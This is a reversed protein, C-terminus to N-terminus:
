KTAKGGTSTTGATHSTVGGAVVNEDTTNEEESTHDTHGPDTAHDGGGSPGAPGPGVPTTPLLEETPDELYNMPTLLKTGEFCDAFQMARIIEKPNLNKETEEVIRGNNPLIDGVFRHKKPVVKVKKLTTKDMM